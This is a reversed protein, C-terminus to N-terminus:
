RAAQRGKLIPKMLRAPSRRRVGCTVRKITRPRRGPVWNFTQPSTYSNGGVTIGLGAPSTAVNFSVAAVDDNLITGLGEGDSLNAILGPSFGYLRVCM